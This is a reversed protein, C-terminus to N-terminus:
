PLPPLPPPMVGKPLDAYMAHAAAAAEAQDYWAGNARIRAAEDKAANAQKVYKKAAAMGHEVAVEAAHLKAVLESNSADALLQKKIEREGMQQRTSYEEYQKGVKLLDAASQQWADAISLSKVKANKYVAAAVLAKQAAHARATEEWGLRIQAAEGADKRADIIVNELAAQGAAEAAENRSHALKEYAYKSLAAAQKAQTARNAAQLVAAEALQEAVREEEGTGSADLHTRRALDAAIGSEAAAPSSALGSAAAAPASAVLAVVPAPAQEAAEEKDACLLDKSSGMPQCAAMCFRSYDVERGSDAFFEAVKGENPKLCLTQCGGDGVETLLSTSGGRPVCALKSHFSKAVESLCCDCTCAEAARGTEQQVKLGAGSGARLYAQSFLPLLLLSHVFFFCSPSM